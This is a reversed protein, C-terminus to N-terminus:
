RPPVRPIRAFVARLVLVIFMCVGFALVGYAFGHIYGLAAAICLIAFFLMDSGITTTIHIDYEVDGCVDVIM